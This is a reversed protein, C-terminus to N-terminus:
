RSAGAGPPQPTRGRRTSYRTRRSSASRQYGTVLHGIITTHKTSIPTTSIPPVNSNMAKEEFKSCPRNTSPMKQTAAPTAIALTNSVLDHAARCAADIVHKRLLTARRLSPSIIKDGRVSIVECRDRAEWELKAKLSLESKTTLIVFLISPTIHRAVLLM